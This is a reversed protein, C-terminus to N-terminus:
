EHKNKNKYLKFLTVINFDTCLRFIKRTDGEMKYYTRCRMKNKVDLMQIIFIVSIYILLYKNRYIYKNDIFFYTRTNVNFYKKLISIMSDFSFYILM